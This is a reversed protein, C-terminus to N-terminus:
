DTWAFVANGAPQQPPVQWNAAAQNSEGRLCGLLTRVSGAVDPPLTEAAVRAEIERCLQALDSSSYAAVTAQDSTSSALPVGAGEGSASRTLLPKEQADGTDSIFGDQDAGPESAGGMSTLSQQRTLCVLAEQLGAEYEAALSLESLLLQERERMQAVSAELAANAIRLAELENSAASPSQIPRADPTVAVDSNVADEDSVSYHVSERELRGHENPAARPLVAACTGEDAAGQKGFRDEACDKGHRTDYAGPQAVFSAESAPWADLSCISPVREPRCDGHGSVCAQTSDSPRMWESVLDVSVCCDVHAPVQASAHDPAGNPEVPQQTVHDSVLSGFAADGAAPYNEVAAVGSDLSKSYCHREECADGACVSNTGSTSCSPGHQTMQYLAERMAALERGLAMCEECRYEGAAIDAHASPVDAPVTSSLADSLPSLVATSADPKSAQAALDRRLATVLGRLKHEAREQVLRARQLQALEADKHALNDELCACQGALADCQRKTVQLEVSLATLAESLDAVSQRELVLEDTLASITAGSDQTKGDSSVCPAGLDGGRSHELAHVVSRLESVLETHRAADEAVTHVGSDPLSAEVTAERSQCGEAAKSELAAHLQRQLEGNEADLQESARRLDHFRAWLARLKKTQRHRHTRVVILEQRAAQLATRYRGCRNQSITLRATKEALVKRLRATHGATERLQEITAEQEALRALLLASDRGPEGAAAKLQASLAAIMRRGDAIEGHLQAVAQGSHEISTLTAALREILEARDSVARELHAGQRALAARAAELQEGQATLQACLASYDAECALARETQVALASTLNCERESFSQLLINQREALVELAFRTKDCQTCDNTPLSKELDCCVGQTRLKPFQAASANAEADADGLDCCVGQTRLKPLQPPLESTEAEADRQVHGTLGIPLTAPASPRTYDISSIGDASQGGNAATKAIFPSDDLPDPRLVELEGPNDRTDAPRLARRDLPRVPSACIAARDIPPTSPCPISLASVRMQLRPNLARGPSTGGAPLIAALAPSSVDRERGDDARLVVQRYDDLASELAVRSEPDHMLASLMGCAEHCLPGDSSVAAFLALMCLRRLAELADADLGDWVSYDETDFTFASDFSGPSDEAPPRAPARALADTDPLPLRTWDQGHRARGYALLRGLVRRLQAVRLLGTWPAPAALLTKAFFRRDLRALMEAVVRGDSLAAACGAAEPAHGALAAVMRLLHRTAAM